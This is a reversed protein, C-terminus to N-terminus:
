LYLDETLTTPIAVPQQSFAAPTWDRHLPSKRCGELDATPGVWGGTCTTVPRKRPLLADPNHRQVDGRMYRADLNFFIYIYLEAGRQTFM